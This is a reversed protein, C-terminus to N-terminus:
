AICPASPCAMLRVVAVCPLSLCILAAVNVTEGTTNNKGIFVTGFSGSGISKGKTFSKAGM